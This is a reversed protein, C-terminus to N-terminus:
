PRPETPKRLRLGAFLAFAPVALWASAPEPAPTLPVKGDNIASAYSIDGDARSFTLSILDTSNRTGSSAQSANTPTTTLNNVIDADASTQSLVLVIASLTGLKLVKVVLSNM